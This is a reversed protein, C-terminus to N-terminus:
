FSRDFRLFEFICKRRLEFSVLIIFTIFSSISLLLVCLFKYHNLDFKMKFQTHSKEIKCFSTGDSCYFRHRVGKAM